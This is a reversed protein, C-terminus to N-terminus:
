RLFFSSILQGSDIRQGVLDAEMTVSTVKKKIFHSLIFHSQLSIFKLSSIKIITTTHSYFQNLKEKLWCDRMMIMKVMRERVMITANGIGLFFSGCYVMWSSSKPTIFFIVCAVILKTKPKQNTSKNLPPLSFILLDVLFRM